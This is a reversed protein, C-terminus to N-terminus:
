RFYDWAFKNPVNGWDPCHDTGVLKGTPPVFLCIRKGNDWFGLNEYVVHGNVGRANWHQSARADVCPQLIPRYLIISGLQLCWRNGNIEQYLM